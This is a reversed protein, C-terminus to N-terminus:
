SYRRIISISPQHRHKMIAQLVPNSSLRSHLNDECQYELIELNKVINSFFENFSKAVETENSEITDNNVLIIPEKSKVKDSVFPKVTQWFKRNETIDKGNIKTFFKKKKALLFVCFNRQKNYLLKNKENPNKLFKIRFRTRQM